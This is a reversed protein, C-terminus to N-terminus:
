PDLFISIKRMIIKRATLIAETTIVAIPILYM